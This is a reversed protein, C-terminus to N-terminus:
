NGGQDEGELKFEEYNRLDQSDKLKNVENVQIYM